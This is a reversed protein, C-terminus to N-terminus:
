TFLTFYHLLFEQNESTEDLFVFCFLVFFLFHMAKSCSETSICSLSAPLVLVGLVKIPGNLIKINKKGGSAISLNKLFKLMLVLIM